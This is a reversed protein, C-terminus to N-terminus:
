SVRRASWRVKPVRCRTVVRGRRRIVSRMHFSGRWRRGDARLKGQIFATDTSRFRGIRRRYTGGDEFARPELRDIPRLFVTGGTFSGGRCRTRWSIRARTVLGDAGTRVTVTRGQRTKGKWYAADAPAPAGVAAVSVVCASAIALKFCM